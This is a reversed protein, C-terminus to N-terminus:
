NRSLTVRILLQEPSDQTFENCIQAEPITSTDVLCTWTLAYLTQAVCRGRQGVQDGVDGLASVDRRNALARLLDPRVRSGRRPLTVLSNV